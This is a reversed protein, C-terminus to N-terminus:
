QIFSVDGTFNETGSCNTLKLNWSYVGPINVYPGPNGNADPTYRGDWRIQGNYFGLCTTEYKYYVRNGWRDYVSLEYSFANYAPAAYQNMLTNYIIFPNTVSMATPKFLGPFSGTFVPPKITATNTGCVSTITVTSTTNGTVASTDSTSGTSWSYKVNSTAQQMHFSYDPGVEAETGCLKIWPDFRVTGLGTCNNYSVCAFGGKVNQIVTVYVWKENKCGKYDFAIRYRTCRTPTVTIENYPIFPGGPPGTFSLSGNGIFNGNEDYWKYNTVIDNGQATINASLKISSGCCIVKNSTKILPYEIKVIKSAEVWGSTCNRVRLRVKYYHGSQLNPMNSRLSFNGVPGNKVIAFPPTGILNGVADCEQASWVYQSENSTSSGDFLIPDEINCAVYPGNLVPVSLLPKCVADIYAYGFHQGESCDATAFYITLQQGVYQSPISICQTQWEKWTLPSGSYIMSRFFPDSVDANIKVPANVLNGPVTSNALDNTTSIWFSFFGNLNPDSHAGQLVLAYMFSLTNSATFTYSMIEAGKGQTTNGLRLASSGEAVMPLSSGVIPDNGTNVVAHQDPAIGQTFTSLNLTGGVNNGKYGQWNTLNNMELDGNPCQAYTCAMNLLMCALLIILKKM